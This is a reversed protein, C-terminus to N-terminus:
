PFFFTRFIVKSSWHSEIGHIDEINWEFGITGSEEELTSTEVKLSTDSFVILCAPYYKDGYYVYDTPIVNDM